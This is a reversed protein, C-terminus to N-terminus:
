LFCIVRIKAKVRIVRIKQKQDVYDLYETFETIEIDIGDNVDVANV